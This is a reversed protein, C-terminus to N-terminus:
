GGIIVFQKKMALFGKENVYSVGLLRHNEDYVAIDGHSSNVGFRKATMRVGNLYHVSDKENLVIKPLHAFVRDIPILKEQLRGESTLSQAEELTICEDIGFGSAVTRRLETLVAGCKLKQGIDHCLTRIYTGKSCAVEITFEPVSIDLINISYVTIDRAEREVEIGQRALDYLRRGNVQVASYMPPLQKQTGVFSNIVERIEEESPIDECQSIVKGMIDQTDTTMGLSVKAKYTKDQIPLMDVAKVARGFFIPLVGTAMPDLTGAHGVKKTKAMGRMRAIVDFSTYDKPKDILIIGEFNTLM